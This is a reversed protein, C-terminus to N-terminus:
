KRCLCVLGDVAVLINPMYHQKASVVRIGLFQTCLKLLNGRDAQLALSQALREVEPTGEVM